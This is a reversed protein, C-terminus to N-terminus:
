GRVPSLRGRGFVRRYKPIFLDAGKLRRAVESGAYGGGSIVLKPKM